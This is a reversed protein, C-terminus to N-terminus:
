GTKHRDAAPDTGFGAVLIGAAAALPEAALRGAIEVVRAALRTAADDVAERRWLNRALAAALAAADPGGAAGLAREYAQWRGLAATMMRRIHRGVALDGVGAERLARDWHAVAREIVLRRLEDAERGALHADGAIRGLLLSLMLLEADFRGDFSDPVGFGEYLLPARAASAAAAHLREALARLRRRARWRALIEGPGTM